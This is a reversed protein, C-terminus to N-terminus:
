TCSPTGLKSLVGGGFYDVEALPYKRSCWPRRYDTQKLVNRYEEYRPCSLTDPEKKLKSMISVVV